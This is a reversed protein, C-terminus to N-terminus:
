KVIKQWLQNLTEEKVVTDTNPYNMVLLKAFNIHNNAKAKDFNLLEQADSLHSMIVMGIKLEM